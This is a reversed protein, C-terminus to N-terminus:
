GSKKLHEDFFKFTAEQAKRGGAKTFGHKEGDLLLLEHHAGAKKM